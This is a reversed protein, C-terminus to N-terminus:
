IETGDHRQEFRPRGSGGAAPPPRRTGAASWGAPPGIAVRESGSTIAPDQAMPGGSSAGNFALWIWLAWSLAAAGGVTAAAALGIMRRIEMRSRTGPATHLALDRDDVRRMPRRDERGFGAAVQRVTRGSMVAEARRSGARGLRGPSPPRVPVGPTPRTRGPVRTAM